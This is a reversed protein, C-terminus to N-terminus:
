PTPPAVETATGTELPVPSPTPTELYPPATLLGLLADVSSKSIIVVEGGSSDQVYYGSETPTVVGIYVTRETGGNFKVTLIYEPERLGVVEPDIKAIRELLRMTMVQSAAAEASGQEADAEIPRRLAWANEANRALEVTEGSKAKISISAPTGAEAPFLYSVETTPAPTAEIGVPPKRFSRYLFIAVVALLITIYVVTSRRIM